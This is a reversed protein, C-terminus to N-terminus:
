THHYYPPIHMLHTYTIPKFIPIWTICKAIHGMKDYAAQVTWANLIMHINPKQLFFLCILYLTNMLSIITQIYYQICYNCYNVILLPQIASVMMMQKILYLVVQKLQIFFFSINSQELLPTLSMWILSLSISCMQLMTPSPTREAASYVSYIIKSRARTEVDNALSSAKFCMQHKVSM